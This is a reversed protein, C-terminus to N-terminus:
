RRRRTPGTWRSRDLASLLMEVETGTMPAERITADLVTDDTMRTM